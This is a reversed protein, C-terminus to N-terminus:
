ALRHGVVAKGALRYTALTQPGTRLVVFTERRGDAFDRALDLRYRMKYDRRVPGLWAGKAELGDPTAQWWALAAEVTEDHPRDATFAGSGPPGGGAEVQWGEAREVIAPSVTPLEAVLQAMPGRGALNSAVVIGEAYPVDAHEGCLYFRCRRTPRGDADLWKSARRWAVDTEAQGCAVCVRRVIPEDGEVVDRALLHVRERLNRDHATVCDDCVRIFLWPWFGIMSRYEPVQLRRHLRGRPTERKCIDCVAM